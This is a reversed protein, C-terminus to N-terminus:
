GETFDVARMETHRPGLLMGHSITNFSVYHMVSAVLEVVASDELELSKRLLATTYAIMYPSQRAAAIAFAICAKAPEDLRGASMVLRDKRWTNAMMRPQHALVRWILPVHGIGLSERSWAAIEDMAERAEGQLGAPDVPRVGSASPATAEPIDVPLRLAEAGACLSAVHEAVAM